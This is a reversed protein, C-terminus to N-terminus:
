SSSHEIRRGAFRAPHAPPVIVLCMRFADHQAEDVRMAGRVLAEVAFGTSRYLELARRNDSRVELELRHIGAANALSIAHALLERAIGRGQYNPLVGMGVDGRHSVASGKGREIQVWGVVREEDKAVLHISGGEALSFLTRSLDDHNPAQQYALFGGHHAVVDICARLSAVDALRTTFV